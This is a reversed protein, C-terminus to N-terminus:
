EARVTQHRYMAFCRNEDQGLLPITHGESLGRAKQDPGRRDLPGCARKALRHLNQGPSGEYSASDPGASLARASCHLEVFCVRVPGGRLGGCLRGACSLPMENLRGRSTIPPLRNRALEAMRNRQLDRVELSSRSCRISTFIYVGTRALAARKRMTRSKKRPSNM